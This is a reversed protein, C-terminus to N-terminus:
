VGFVKKNLLNQASLFLNKPLKNLDFWRWEKCKNLEKVVPMVDVNNVRFHTTVYHVDPFIDDTTCLYKLQRSHLEIGTEEWTERIATRILSEKAEPKGGPASWTNFGHKSLRLGMLVQGSPNFLWVGVGYKINEKNSVMSFGKITTPTVLNGRCETDAPCENASLSRVARKRKSM